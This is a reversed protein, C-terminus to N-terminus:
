VRIPVPHGLRLEAPSVECTFAFAEVGLDLVERFRSCWAPDIADAPGFSDVDDRAISFVLAARDGAAVRAALEELHKLGRSTVADPFMAHRGEVYTTSKIEVWCPRPDPGEELLIDIRSGTGYKVERRLSAYGALGPVEGAEIAEAVLPNALNTDVCVWTEGVEIAQWTLQLKRKPDHRDRLVLRAGEAQCGILRGPNPCHVTEESGDALFVDALFRKYRRVLTAQLVPQDIRMPGYEPEVKGPPM